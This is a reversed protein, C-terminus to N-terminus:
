SIDDDDDYREMYSLNSLRSLPTFFVIEGKKKRRKWETGTEWGSGSAEKAKVWSKSVQNPLFHNALGNALSSHLRSEHM